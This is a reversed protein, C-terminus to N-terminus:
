KIVELVQGNEYSLSHKTLREQNHGTREFEKIIDKLDELSLVIKKM